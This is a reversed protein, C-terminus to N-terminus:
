GFPQVTKQHHPNYFILNLSDASLSKRRGMKLDTLTSPYIGTAHCLKYGSIGKMDCLEMIRNYLDSM